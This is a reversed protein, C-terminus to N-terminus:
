NESKIEEVKNKKILINAVEKELSAIDEKEFPGYVQMDKGIFKPIAQNFRILTRPQKEIKLEKPSTKQIEPLKKQLINMIIGERYIKITQSLEQYLIKEETLMNKIDEKENKNLLTLNMIKNERISYLQKLIRQTNQLQRKTKDTESSFMGSKTEQSKLIAEKEELYKIVNKYFNKDLAQLEVRNRELRLIESLTEFTIIIDSM